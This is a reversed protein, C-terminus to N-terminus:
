EVVLKEKGKRKRGNLRLSSDGEDNPDVVSDSAVIVDSAVSSEGVVKSLEVEEKKLELLLLKDEVWGRYEDYIKKAAEVVEEDKLGTIVRALNGVSFIDWYEYNHHEKVIYTRLFTVDQKQVVDFCEQTSYDAVFSIPKKM